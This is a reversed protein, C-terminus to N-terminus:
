SSLLGGGHFNEDGDGEGENKGAKPGREHKQHTVPALTVTSDFCERKADPKRNREEYQDKHCIAM